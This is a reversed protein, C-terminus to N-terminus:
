YVPDLRLITSLHFVTDYRDNDTPLIYELPLILHDQLNKGVPVDSITEIGIENLHLSPGIGSLLLIHASGVVGASLIIEKKAKIVTEYNKDFHVFSVGIAKKDEFVVERVTM